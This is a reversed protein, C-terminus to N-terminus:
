GFGGSIRKNESFTVRRTEEEDDSGERKGNMISQVPSVRKPSAASKSTSNPAMTGKQRVHM